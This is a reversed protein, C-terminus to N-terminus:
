DGEPLADLLDERLQDSQRNIDEILLSLKSFFDLTSALIYPDLTSGRLSIQRCLELSSEIFDKRPLDTQSYTSAQKIMDLLKDMKEKVLAAEVQCKKCRKLIIGGKVGTKLSSPYKLM